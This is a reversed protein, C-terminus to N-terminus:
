IKTLIGQWKELSILFKDLISDWLLTSNYPIKKKLDFFNLINLLEKSNVYPHMPDMNRLKVINRWTEIM